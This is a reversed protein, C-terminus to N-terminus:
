EQFSPNGASEASLNGVSEASKASKSHIFRRYELSKSGFNILLCIVSASANLYNLVISEELKTLRDLAKLEVLVDGYCVFDVRYKSKLQRGRYFIPFEVEREFPLDRIELEIALAEQYVSELFGCGLRRHVEMGAGIIAYTRADREPEKQIENM